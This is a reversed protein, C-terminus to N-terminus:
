LFSVTIKDKFTLLFLSKLLFYPSEVRLHQNSTFLYLLCRLESSQEFFFLLQDPHFILRLELLHLTLPGLNLLFLSLHVSVLLQKQFLAVDHNCKGRAEIFSILGYNLKLLLKIGIVPYM